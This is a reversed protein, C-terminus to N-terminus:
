FDRCSLLNKEEGFDEIDARPGVGSDLALNLVFAATGRSGSSAQM